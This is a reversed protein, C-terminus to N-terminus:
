LLAVKELLVNKGKADGNRIQESIGTEFWEKVGLRAKTVGKADGGRMLAEMLEAVVFTGNGQGLCMKVAEEQGIIDVFDVAFQTSNWLSSPVQEVTNTTHSYHGGQLLTKLLRSTTPIAILESDNLLAKLLTHSAKTKDSSYNTGTEVM